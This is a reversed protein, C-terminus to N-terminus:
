RKSRIKWGKVAELYENSTQAKELLDYCWAKTQYPVEMWQSEAYARCIDGLRHKEKVAEEPIPSPRETYEFQYIKHLGDLEGRALLYAEKTIHM